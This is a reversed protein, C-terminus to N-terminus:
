RRGRKTGFDSELSEKEIGDDADPIKVRVKQPALSVLKSLPEDESSDEEEVQRRRVGFAQALPVEDDDSDSGPVPKVTRRKRRRPEAPADEDSGAAWEDVTVNKHVPAATSEDNPATLAATLDGLSLTPPDGAEHGGQSALTADYPHVPTEQSRKGKKKGKRKQKEEEAAAALREEERLAELRRLDRDWIEDVGFVSKGRQQM